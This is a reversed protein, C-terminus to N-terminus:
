HGRSHHRMVVKGILYGIASGVVVDSGYHRQSTLRTLSVAAAVGYAGVQLLKKDSYEDSLVKAFAWARVAHGSPFSNGGNWFGGDGGEDPRARNSVLKLGQVALESYLLAQLGRKGTTEIRPNGSLHGLVLFAAPVGYTGYGAARSFSESSDKLSTKTDFHRSIEDDRILAVATLGALPALWKADSPRIRVPSTLISKQDKMLQRAWGRSLFEEDASKGSPQVPQSQASLPSVFVFFVLLASTLFRGFSRDSM